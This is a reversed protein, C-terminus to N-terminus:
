TRARGAQAAEPSGALPFFNRRQQAAWAYLHRTNRIQAKHAM